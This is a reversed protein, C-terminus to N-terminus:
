DQRENQKANKEEEDTYIIGSGKAGGWSHMAHYYPKSNDSATGGYFFWHVIGGCVIGIAFGIPFLLCFILSSFKYFLVHALPSLILGTLGGYIPKKVGVIGSVVCVAIILYIM